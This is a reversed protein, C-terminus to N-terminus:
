SIGGPGAGFVDEYAYMWAAYCVPMAVFVGVCLALLGAIIILTGVIGLGLFSFFRSSVVKHSVRLADVPKLEMDAVLPIAYFLTVGAYMAALVGAFILIMFLADPSSRDFQGTAVGYIGAPILGVYLILCTLLFVGVLPGFKRFGSFGDGVDAREGRILKLFFLYLGGMLPGNVILGICIGLFPIIGAAQMCIMVLVTTGVTLWFNKTVLNWGRSVCAGIDVTVGRNLIEHLLQDPDVPRPRAGREPTFPVGERRKQFFAPKCAACVWAGGYALAEGKSVKRGCEVCVVDDGSTVATAVPPAGLPPAPAAGAKVEGYPEWHTMGPHWVLTQDTVVGSTVLEALEAEGVPGKQQGDQAYYWEM